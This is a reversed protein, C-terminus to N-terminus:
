AAVEFLPLVHLKGHLSPDAAVAKTIYDQASAQSTFAAAEPHAVKNTSQFAVAFTESSVQISDPYPHTQV